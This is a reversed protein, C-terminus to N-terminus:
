VDYENKFIKRYKFYSRYNLLDDDHLCWARDMYPVVVKYGARRFEFSQSVDYFDWGDFIDERWPIDYQTAMLLGDVAEVETYDGETIGIVSENMDYISCRYIRGVRVGYWMIANEPLRIAGVMGVMGVTEDGFLELLRYLFDKRVMFVDQHMYVKYKAETAAMAENYGAAMSAAEKVTICDITYGEPVDLGKIYYLAEEVYRDDNACIIFCIQRNDM